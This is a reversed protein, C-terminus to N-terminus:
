REVSKLLRFDDEGGIVHLCGNHVVSGHKCRGETMQPIPKWKKEMIDFLWCDKKVEHYYGGSVVIGSQIAGVGYFKWAPRPLQALLEWCSSDAKLYWSYRNEHDEKNLGGVIVLCSAM